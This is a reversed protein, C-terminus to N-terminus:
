DLFHFFYYYECEILTRMRNINAIKRLFFFVIRVNYEFSYPVWSTFPFVRITSCKNFIWTRSNSVKSVKSFFGQGNFEVHWFHLRFQLTQTTKDLIESNSMAGAEGKKYHSSRIANKCVQKLCLSLSIKNGRNNHSPLFTLLTKQPRNEAREAM